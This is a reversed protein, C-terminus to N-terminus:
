TEPRVLSLFAEMGGGQRSRLDVKQNLVRIAVNTDLLYRGSM